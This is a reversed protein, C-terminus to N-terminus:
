PLSAFVSCVGMSVLLSRTMIPNVLSVGVGQKHSYLLSFVSPVVRWDWQLVFVVDFSSVRVPRKCSYYLSLAFGKWDWCCYDVWLLSRTMTPNFFTPERKLALIPCSFWHRLYQQATSSNSSQVRLSALPANNYHIKFSEVYKM